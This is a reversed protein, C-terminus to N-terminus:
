TTKSRRQFFKLPKVKDVILWSSKLGIFLDLCHDYLSKVEPDKLIGYCPNILQMQKKASVRESDSGQKDPHHILCLKRYQATIQDKDSNPNLKLIRYVDLRDLYGTM